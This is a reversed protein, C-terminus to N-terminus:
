VNECKGAKRLARRIASEKVETALDEEQGGLNLARIYCDRLNNTKKINVMRIYRNEPNVTSFSINNKDIVELPRLNHSTFLLQGKGTEEITHIITGLLAEFIGSDLEDIAVCFSPDNYMAILVALVSFLKKIGDSEYRLAFPKGYRTSLIEFRIGESGDERMEAGYNRVDFTLSPVIANMVSSLNKVINDILKFEKKPLVMPKQLDIPFEGFTKLGNESHVIALPLFVDLNIGGNHSNLFVFLNEFAYKRITFVLKKLEGENSKNLLDIFPISFLFSTRNERAMKYAVSMNITNEQLGCIINDYRYKPEFVQIDDRYKCEFYPTTKSWSGESGLKSVSFVESSFDTKNQYASKSITWSYSVLYKELESYQIALKVTFACYDSDVNIVNDIDSWIKKGMAIQKFLAIAQVVSTKGSGNQGYLGLVDAEKSFYNGDCNKRFEVTGKTVNKLNHLEVSLLRILLGDM